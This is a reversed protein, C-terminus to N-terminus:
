VRELAREVAVALKKYVTERDAESLSQLPREPDNVFQYRLLRAAVGALYVDSGYVCLITAGGADAAELLLPLEATRIFDSALFDATLVLVAVGASDVAQKISEAWKQGPQIRTDDWVEFESSHVLGELHTRIRAVWGSPAEAAHAYSIFIKRRTGLAKRPLLGKRDIEEFYADVSGTAHMLEITERLEGRSVLRDMVKSLALRAEPFITRTQDFDTIIRGRYRGEVYETKMWHVAEEFSGEVDPRFTVYTAYVNPPGRYDSVFSVAASAELDVARPESSDIRTARLYLRPVMVANDFLRTFPDPVFALEGQIKARVAGLKSISALLPGYLGRPLAVPVGTHVVGDSTATMFWHPEGHIAIPKLRLCGIGGQLMSSKGEPTFVVTYDSAARKEGGRQAHDRIPSDPRMPQLYQYAEQRAREAGPAHYLGPSRPFWDLLHFGDLVVEMGASVERGIARWFDENRGYLAPQLSPGANLPALLYDTTGVHSGLISNAPGSWSFPQLPVRQTENLM